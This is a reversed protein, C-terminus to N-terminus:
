KMEEMDEQRLLRCATIEGNDIELLGASGGYYGCSGPNLVWLGDEERYCLPSHTHGFLVAKADAARAAALLREIGSKVGHHHGHTMFTRVGGLSIALIQPVDPGVRFRDCNGPLQIWRINPYDEAVAAADDYYDGLHVVTDPRVSAICLHMFRLAAHSDSLVLIKM